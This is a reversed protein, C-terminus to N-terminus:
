LGSEKTNTMLTKSINIPCLLKKTQEYNMNM